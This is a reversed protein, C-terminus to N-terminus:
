APSLRVLVPMDGQFKVPHLRFVAGPRGRVNFKDRRISWIPTVRHTEIVQVQRVQHWKGGVQLKNGFRGPAHEFRRRYATFQAVSQNDMVPAGVCFLRKNVVQSEPVQIGVQSM